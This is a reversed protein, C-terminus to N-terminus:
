DDTKGMIANYRRQSELFQPTKLSSEKYGKDSMLEAGHLVQRMVEADIEKAMEDAGREVARQYQSEPTIGFQRNILDIAQGRSIMDRLQPTLARKCEGIILEAFRELIMDQGYTMYDPYGAQEALEKIRKNM